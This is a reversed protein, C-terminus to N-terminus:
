GNKIEFPPQLLEDSDQELRLNFKEITIGNRSVISVDENEKQKSIIKNNNKM